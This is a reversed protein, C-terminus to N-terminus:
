MIRLIFVPFLCKAIGVAGAGKEGGLVCGPTLTPDGHEPLLSPLQELYVLVGSCRGGDRVHGEGGRAVSRTVGEPGVECFVIAPLSVRLHEETGWSAVLAPARGGQAVPGM